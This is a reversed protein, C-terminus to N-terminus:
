RGEEHASMLMKREWVVVDEMRYIVRSKKARGLKLYAPGKGAMRWDEIAGVTLGLRAALQATTLRGSAHYANIHRRLAPKDPVGAGCILCKRRAM